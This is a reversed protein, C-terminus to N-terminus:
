VVQNLGLALSFLLNLLASVNQYYKLLNNSHPNSPM